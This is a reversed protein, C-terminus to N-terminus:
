AASDRPTGIDSTMIWYSIADEPRLRSFIRRSISRFRATM